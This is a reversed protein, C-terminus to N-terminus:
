VCTITPKVGVRAVVMRIVDWYPAFTPLAYRFDPHGIRRNTFLGRFHLFGGTPAWCLRQMRVVFDTIQSPLLAPRHLPSFIRPYQNSELGEWLRSPLAFLNAFEHYATTPFVVKRTYLLVERTQQGKRFSNFKPFPSLM